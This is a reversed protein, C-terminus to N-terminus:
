ILFTCCKLTVTNCQLQKWHNKGGDHQVIPRFYQLCKDWWGKDKRLMWQWQLREWINLRYCVTVSDQIDDPSNMNSHTFRNEIVFLINEQWIESRWENLYKRLLADRRETIVWKITWQVSWKVSCEVAQLVVAAEAPLTTSPGHTAAAAAALNSDTETASGQRPWSYGGEGGRPEPLAASGIGMLASCWDSRPGSECMM